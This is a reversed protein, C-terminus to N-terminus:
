LAYSIVLPQVCNCSTPAGRKVGSLERLVSLHLAPASPAGPASSALITRSGSRLAGRLQIGKDSVRRLRRVRPDRNFVASGLTRDVALAGRASRPVHM